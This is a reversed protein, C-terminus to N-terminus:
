VLFCLELFMGVLNRQSLEHNVTEYYQLKDRLRLIEQDKMEIITAAAEEAEAHSQGRGVAEAVFRAVLIDLSIQDVFSDELHMGDSSSPFMPFTLGVESMLKRIREWQARMLALREEAAKRREIEELLTLRSAHFESEIRNDCSTANSTSGDSTFETFM